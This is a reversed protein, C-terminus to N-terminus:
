HPLHLLLVELALRLNVNATAITKKATLIQQLAQLYLNARFPHPRVDKPDTLEQRLTILWGDLLNLVEERSALPKKNEEVWLLRQGRNKKLLDIIIKDTAANKEPLMPGLDVIRCRSRVTPLVSEADPSTLILLSRAPPEELTKLLCNQAATTARQVEIILATKKAAQFPLTSLQSQLQRISEISIAAQDLDEGLEFFDIGALKDPPSRLAAAALYYAQAIRGRPHAGTILTSHFRLDIEQAGM